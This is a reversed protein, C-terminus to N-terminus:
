LYYERRVIFGSSQRALILTVMARIAATLACLDMRDLSEAPGELSRGFSEFGGGIAGWRLVRHASYTFRTGKSVTESVDAKELLAHGSGRSGEEALAAPAIGTEGRGM